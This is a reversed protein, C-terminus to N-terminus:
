AAKRRGLEFHALLEDTSVRKVDLSQGPLGRLHALAAAEDSCIRQQARSLLAFAVLMTRAITLGLGEGRLVIATGLLKPGLSRVQEAIAKKVNEDPKGMTKTEFIVLVSMHGHEEVVKLEHKHDAEVEAVTNPGLYQVVYLSGSKAIRTNPRRVIDTFM